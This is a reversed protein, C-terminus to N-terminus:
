PDWTTTLQPVPRLCLESGTHSHGVATARIQGRAQSSRYPVPAARFLLFFFVLCVFLFFEGRDEIVKPIANKSLRLDTYFTVGYSSTIENGNILM